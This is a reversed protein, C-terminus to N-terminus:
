KVPPYLFILGFPNVKYTRVIKDPLKLPLLVNDVSCLTKKSIKKFERCNQNKDIKM